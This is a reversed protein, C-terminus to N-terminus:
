QRPEQASRRLWVAVYRTSEVEQYYRNLVPQIGPDHHLGDSIAVIVKPRRRVTRDVVRRPGLWDRDVYIPPAPLIPTLPTLLYDWSDASWIVATAGQLRHARLWEAAAANGTVRFDYSDEYRTNSVAGTLHGMFLPYYHYTMAVTYFPTKSHAGTFMQAWILLSLVVGAVLPLWRWRVSRLVAFGPGVLSGVVVALPVAAPLLHFPYARNPLLYVFLDVGLWAWVILAAPRSRRAVIVGVVLLLGAAVRPLLHAPNLPLTQSTYGGFSFLLFYAVRHLGSSLVAPMLGAVVIVACSLALVAPVMLARRRPLVTLVLLLVLVAGAVTQQILCASGLLLGAGAAALLRDRSVPGNAARLALVMGWAEPAILLNEPLTLDGLLLPPGLLIAALLSGVWVGPGPFNDRLVKWVAGVTLMGAVISFAHLGAESPGWWSLAMQYIWFLLPPKNNWVTLYLVRGHAMLYATNAYGAEDTYWHPEFLSPLRLLLLLVLPVVLSLAVWRHSPLRTSVWWRRGAGSRETGDLPAANLPSGRMAPLALARNCPPAM